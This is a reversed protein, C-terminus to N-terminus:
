GIRRAVICVQQVTGNGTASAQKLTFTYVPEDQFAIATCMVSHAEIEGAVVKNHMAVADMLPTGTITDRGERIQPIVTTTAAGILVQAWATLLLHQGKRVGNVKITIVARETTTTITVNTRSYEAKALDKM